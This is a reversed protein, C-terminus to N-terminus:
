LSLNILKDDHSFLKEWEAENCLTRMKMSDVRVRDNLEKLKVTIQAYIAELDSRTTDYRQNATIVQQRLEKIEGMIGQVDNDFADLMALMEQRREQDPIHKVIAARSKEIREINLISSDKSTCGTLGALALSLGLLGGAVFVRNKGCNTKMM